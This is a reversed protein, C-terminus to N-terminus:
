YEAPVSDRADYQVHSRHSSAFLACGLGVINCQPRCSLSPLGPAGARLM